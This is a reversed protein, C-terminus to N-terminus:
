KENLEGSVQFKKMFKRDIHDKLRFALKGGWVIKDKWFIGKNDGMNFILLYNGGPDFTALKKGNASAMVNHFLVPNQRVAYVGVKSLNHGALNICDGGGFM